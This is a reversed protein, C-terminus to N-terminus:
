SFRWLRVTGNYSGAGAALLRGDPSFALTSGDSREWDLTAFTKGTSVNWLRITKDEAASALVRSDPSFALGQVHGEHGELDRSKRSRLDLIRVTWGPEEHVHTAATRGDPAFVFEVSVPERVPNAIDRHTRLDHIQVVGRLGIVAIREGAADFILRLPPGTRPAFAGTRRGTATDWLEIGGEGVIALTRGDPSFAKTSRTPEPTVTRIRTGTATDWLKVPRKWRTTAALRATGASRRARTPATRAWTTRPAGTPRSPGGGSRSTARASWRRQTPPSRSSSCPRRDM